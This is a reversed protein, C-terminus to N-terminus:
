LVLRERHSRTDNTFPATLSEQFVDAILAKWFEAVPVRTDCAGNDLHVSITRRGPDYSVVTLRSAQLTQKLGPRVIDFCRGILYQAKTSSM